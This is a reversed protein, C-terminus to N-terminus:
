WSPASPRSPPSGTGVRRPSACARVLDQRVLEVLEVQEDLVTGIAQLAEDMALTQAQLELDAFSPQTSVSLRM